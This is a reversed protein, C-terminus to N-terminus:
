GPGLHRATRYLYGRIQLRELVTIGAATRVLFDDFAAIEGPSVPFGVNAGDPMVRSDAIKKGSSDLAVFFPIGSVVGSMTALMRESGPNELARNAPTEMAVVNAVVYHAALVPGVGSDVLFDHFLRCPECWSAGFIVLAVKHEAAARRVVSDVVAQASPPSSEQAVLRASSRLPVGGAALTGAAVMWTPLRAM